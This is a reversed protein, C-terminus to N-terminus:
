PVSPCSLLLTWYSRLIIPTKEVEQEVKSGPISFGTPFPRCEEEGWQHVGAKTEGEVVEFQCHDNM